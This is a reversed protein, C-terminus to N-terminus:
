PKEGNDSDHTMKLYLQHALPFKSYSNMGRHCPDCLHLWCCPHEKAKRRHIGRAMHHLQEARCNCDDGQCNPHKQKYAEEEAKMRRNLRQRDLSTHRMEQFKLFDLRNGVNAFPCDPPVPVVCCSCDLGAMDNVGDCAYADRWAEGDQLWITPLCNPIAPSGCM